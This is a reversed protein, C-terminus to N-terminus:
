LEGITRIKFRLFGSILFSLTDHKFDSIKVFKYCFYACSRIKKIPKWNKQKIYVIVIYNEREVNAFIHLSFFLFCQIKLSSTIAIERWKILYADLEVVLINRQFGSHYLCKCDIPCINQLCLICVMVKILFNLTMLNILVNFQM